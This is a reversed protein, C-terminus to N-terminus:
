PGRSAVAAAQRVADWPRPRLAREGDVTVGAAALQIRLAGRDATDRWAAGAERWRAVVVPLPHRFRNGHGTSVIAWRAGTAAVFAPDSSGASGHHAALVVDARLRSAARRVLEREIVEGIDAPLLAVRGAATRVRLVCGAENGLYPFYATPHLVDFRVGDWTWHMGALCPRTDAVGSGAPALRWHERVGRRIAADGGAHDADAHSIIVGDLRRVGLARLSPLVAREGADFGEPVRPGTDYLLAHHRTRVLVSLGQGVDFVVLEAEGPPPLHRDPWLLPLWLLAALPKGPVGRPLLWWFAGLLALPLAFWPGRAPWWEAMGTHALQTFLWWSPRFCGASAQWAWAGWGAHVAELGTGILALPVVVLSWWPVALLNAFPGALSAQGFLVITLPLLGLTAVGQARLFEGIRGRGTGPLCWALWAVGAFSLWFGASLLALPDVLLMALLALALVQAMGVARRAQRALVVVAIMVVTRVTPLAFGALAAYGIAALLGAMGAALPQPWQRGLRPWLWWLGRALLVALGAVLGVHFGSIAILHTLGTARLTDWDADPLGRTDGLALAQVFRAEAHPVERAIRASMRARWADVGQAGSLRRATEADRVYGTAATGDALMFREADTAGPNRLGRPARLKVRLRWREGPHLSPAWQGKGPADFWSLRLHAGHRLVPSNATDVQRVDFGFRMGRPDRQPLGEVTGIVTVVAGDARAPWQGAMGWAAHATCLAFGFVLAGAWRWGAGRWWLWAGPLLLGLAWPWPLFRPLLLAVGAGALVAAAVAPGAPAVPQRAMAQWDM